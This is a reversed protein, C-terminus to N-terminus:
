WVRYVEAIDIIFPDLGFDSDVGCDSRRKSGSTFEMVTQNLKM